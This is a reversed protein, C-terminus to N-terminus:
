MLIRELLALMGHHKLMARGTVPRAERITAEVSERVAGAFASDDNPVFLNLENLQRFAKKTINCSGLSIEKESMLLKAHVMKDSLFLAPGTGERGALRKLTRKNTDDTFNARAPALIRVATGRDVAARIAELFRKEPSFYAMMITLQRDARGILDLYREEIEFSRRPVKLNVGFMDDARDPEPHARRYLFREVLAKDRIEVMYDRYVRGLRDRGNEKDEVNIGGLILVANDFIYFKSHDYRYRDSLIQINPHATFSRYLASEAALPPNRLLDRNYIAELAKIKIKETLTPRKHFFSRQTEECYECIIGYRDKVIVVRVGRDAARLLEEALRNGIADDRWIFMNIHIHDVASRVCRIIESFAEQGDVLLRLNESMADEWSRPGPRASFRM